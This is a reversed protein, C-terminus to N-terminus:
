NFLYALAYRNLIYRLTSYRPRPTYTHEAKIFGALSNGLNAIKIWVGGTTYSFELQKM